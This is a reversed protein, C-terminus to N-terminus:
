QRAREPTQLQLGSELVRIELTDTKRPWNKKDLSLILRRPDRGSVHEQESGPLDALLVLSSSGVRMWEEWVPDDALLVQGTPKGSGFEFTRKIADRRRANGPRWYADVDYGEWNALAQRNAGVIDIVVTDNAISPDVNIAIAYPRPKPTSSCGAALLCLGAVATLKLVFSLFSSNIKM